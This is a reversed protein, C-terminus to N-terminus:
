ELATDIVRVCRACVIVRVVKVIGRGKCNCRLSSGVSWVCVNGISCFGNACPVRYM